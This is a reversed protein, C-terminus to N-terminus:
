HSDQDFESTWESLKSAYPRASPVLFDTIQREGEDHRSIRPTAIFKSDCVPPQGACELVSKKKEFFVHHHIINAEPCQAPIDSISFSIVGVDMRSRANWLDAFSNPIDATQQGPSKLARLCLRSFLGRSARAKDECAGPRLISITMKHGHM